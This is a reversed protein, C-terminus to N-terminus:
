PVEPMKVIELNGRLAEKLFAELSKKEDGTLNLPKMLSTKDPDDGGGKNFFDIVSELTDFVGNHM